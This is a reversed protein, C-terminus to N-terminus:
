GYASNKLHAGRPDCRRWALSRTKPLFEQQQRLLKRNSPLLRLKADSMLGIKRRKCRLCAQTKQRKSPRTDQQSDSLGNSATALDFVLQHSTVTESADDRVM